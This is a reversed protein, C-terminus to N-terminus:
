GAIIELTAPSIGQENALFRQEVSIIGQKTSYPIQM